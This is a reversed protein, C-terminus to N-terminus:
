APAASPHLGPRFGAGIVAIVAPPTLAQLTGRPLPRRETYGGPTWRLLLGAGVLWAADQWHVFTGDPLANAPYPRCRRRGDTLAREAALVADISDAGPAAARGHAAAWCDGFRRYDARRCEACPRHGAALATAEDLFFLHTYRGPTMVERHRDGFVLTCAIWRRVQSRRVIVGRADHLVGRNGTLLGRDAVAILDGAPTVRNQFPLGDV